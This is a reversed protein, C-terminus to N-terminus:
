WSNFLAIIEEIAWQANTGSVSVGMSELTIEHRQYDKRIKISGMLEPVNNRQCIERAKTEFDALWSSMVADSGFSLVGIPM